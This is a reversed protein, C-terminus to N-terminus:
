NGINNKDYLGIAIKSKNSLELYIYLKKDNKISINKFEYYYVSSDFLMQCFYVQVFYKEIIFKDATFIGNDGIKVHDLDDQEEIKIFDFWEEDWPNRLKFQKNNKGNNVIDILSYAHEETSLNFLYGDKIKKIFYNYLVNNLDTVSIDFSEFGTLAEFAQCPYGGNIDAYSGRIKAYAKELLCSYLCDNIPQTFAFEESNKEFVFYDDVLVKVWKGQYYLCIEYFGETNIKENPFLQFLLQGYNSLTSIVALFYYTGLKGQKVKTSDLTNDFIKFNKNIESIRKYEFENDIVKLYKSKDKYKEKLKPKILEDFLENQREEELVRILNQWVINNYINNKVENFLYNKDVYKNKDSKPLKTLFSIFDQENLEIEECKQYNNKEM